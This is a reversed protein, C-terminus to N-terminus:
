LPGLARFAAALSTLVTSQCSVELEKIVTGLCEVDNIDFSVM